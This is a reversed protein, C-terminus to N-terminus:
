RICIREELVYQKLSLDVKLLVNLEFFGKVVRLVLPGPEVRLLKVIATGLDLLVPVLFTLEVKEYSM